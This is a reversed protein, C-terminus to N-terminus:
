YTMQNILSPLASLPHLTIDAAEQWICLIDFQPWDLLQINKNKYGRTWMQGTEM